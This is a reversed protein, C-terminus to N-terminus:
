NIGYVEMGEFIVKCVVVCIVVNMGFVDGGSILVVICKM